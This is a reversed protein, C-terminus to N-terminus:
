NQDPTLRVTIDTTSGLNIAGRAVMIGWLGDTANGYVPIRCEVSGTSPTGGSYWTSVQRAGLSLLQDTTNLAFAANDTYTGNSPNTNFVWVDIPVTIAAKSHITIDVIYGTKGAGRMAAPFSMVGGIVEGSAYDPSASVVAEVPVTKLTGGAVVRNADTTTQDLGFSGLAETTFGTPGVLVVPDLGRQRLERDTAM